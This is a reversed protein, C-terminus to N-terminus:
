FTRQHDDHAENETQRVSQVTQPKGNCTPTQTAVRAPRPPPPNQRGQRPELPKPVGSVLPKAESWGQSCEAVGGPDLSGAGACRPECFDKTSRFSLM